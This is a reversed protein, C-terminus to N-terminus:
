TQEIGNKYWRIYSASEGDGDADSYDYSASLEEHTKPNSPSIVLNNVSPATNGITVNISDIWNGFDTGDSPRVKFHWEESKSTNGAQVTISGNLPGQLAGNKYWIIETGSESDSDPDSYDYSVMLDQSTVPNGPTIAANSATPPANQITITDSSTVNGFDQGDKPEVTANWQDDKILALTPVEKQDDYASQLIGNKYWHIKTGGESHNEADFYDYRLYLISNSYIPVLLIDPDRSLTVNNAEPPTNYNPIVDPRASTNFLNGAEDKVTIVYWFTSGAGMSITNNMYGSPTSQMFAWIDNRPIDNLKTINVIVTDIEGWSDSVNAKFTGYQGEDPFYDWDDVNPTITDEIFTELKLNSPTTIFNDRVDTANSIQYEYSDGYNVSKLYIWYSGNYSMDYETSNITIKVDKVTSIADTVEAWFRGTGTGLDETGYNNIVPPTADLYFETGVLHFSMPNYQNIYQINIWDASRVSNSVRVEDLKSSSWDSLTGGSDSPLTNMYFPLAFDLSGYGTIDIPSGTIEVGDIYFRLYNGDRVLVVHHWLNDGYTLTSTIVKKGAGGNDDIEGKVLGGTTDLAIYYRIGSGGYFGKGALPGKNVGDYNFWLSLSFDSSGMNLSPQDGCNIQDQVDDFDISGDIQGSEQDDSALNSATGHYNNSTSDKMQSISPDESLHWVGKFNSDWVEEPNEQDTLESSGYYMTIVTDETNYLYPVRVWSTLHGDSGTQTFSEIEHDLKLGLPDIFLIDSADSQVKGNKLDSDTFDILIPFDTFDASVKSQNILIDKSYRFSADAWEREMENGISYFSFPNEQNDFETRIWDSSLVNYAIRPEDISGDFTRGGSMFDGIYLSQAADTNASGIPTPEPTLSQLIGNIYISPVNSDSSDDFAVTVYQWQNLSISDTPTYWLGRRSSFDRYFLLHNYPDGTGDICMVWGDTGGTALSKDFVRGYNAGGWGEPHLWASITAGGNFINDISSDSGVNIYDNSGDFDQGDVIKAGVDTSQFNTGDNNNATSDLFDDNLHWVAGYDNWVAEPNALSAVASNGYWLNIDTDATGKLVPIKVWAVLHAHTSNFSQDFLEIEHDLRTGYFDTFAIDDGDSQVKETARLNSDYLEILFPFNYLNGTGYVKSSDITISKKYRLYPLTWNGRIEIPNISYFGNPDYQNNYGTVIWDSSRAINSIRTEDLKGDYFPADDPTVEDGRAGFRLPNGPDYQSPAATSNDYVLQGNLYMRLYNSPYYVGVVHQWQGVEYYVNDVEGYHPLIGDTDYRFVLSGYSGNDPDFSIDWCRMDPGPGNKSIVYENQDSDSSFWTEVTLAGEIQVESPNGFDIFDETGDLNLADGIVGSILDNSTMSGYVTGHTSPTTSDKIQPSTGSPDQNLHWVGVYNSDWVADPNTQSTLGSNGFYMFIETDDTGSLNPIEVWAVLHAKTSDYNQNFLEIEHDLMNGSADSFLIDDGDPQVKYPHHLDSDYLDILIPFNSLDGSGSVETADITIGKRYMFGPFHWDPIDSYNEESSLSYFTKPSNQNEYETSIWDASRVTSSLRFESITVNLEKDSSSGGPGDANNDEAGISFTNWTIHTGDHPTSAENDLSGGIYIRQITGSEWVCSFHYWNGATFTTQTSSLVDSGSDTEIHFDFENYFWLYPDEETNATSALFRSSSPSWGNPLMLWFEFTISDTPGNFNESLPLYIYDDIGDFSIAKGIKSELLDDSTMSGAAEVSFDYGNSTSDLIDSSSPDENMHLVFEYNDDWVVEPNEQNVATPNGYYMSIITDQSNSLNTKVWAVLHAHTSNYVRNYMEIEHDLIHGSANTFFIDNGSAQADDQLDSDYLDIYVPFNTQTGSVKTYDITINKRFKWRTDAWGPVFYASQKFHITNSSSQNTQSNISSPSLLRPVHPYNSKQQEKFGIERMFPAIFDDFALFTDEQM